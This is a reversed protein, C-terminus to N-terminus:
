EETGAEEKEKEELLALRQLRRLQLQLLLVLLDTAQHM